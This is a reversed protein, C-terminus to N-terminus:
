PLVAVGVDPALAGVVVVADVTPLNPVSADGHPVPVAFPAVSLPTVSVDIV